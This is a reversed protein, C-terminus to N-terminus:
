WHSSDKPPKQSIIKSDLLWLRSPAGVEIRRLNNVVTERRWQSDSAWTETYTGQVAELDDGVFSFTATLRFAPAGSSRIDSLQRAHQMLAEARSQVDQALCCLQLCSLCVASLPIRLTM